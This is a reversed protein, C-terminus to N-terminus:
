SESLGVISLDSWFNGIENCVYRNGANADTIKGDGQSGYTVADNCGNTPFYPSDGPLNNYKTKFNTVASDYQQLQRVFANIQASKIMSQAVLIGGILLGIIVLVISLEVLTFGKKTV